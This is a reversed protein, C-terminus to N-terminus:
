HGKEEEAETQIEDECRVQAQDLPPRSPFFFFFFVLCSFSIECFDCAVISWVCDSMKRKAPFM